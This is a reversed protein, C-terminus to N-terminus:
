LAFIDQLEAETKMLSDIGLDELEAFFGKGEGQVLLDPGIRCAHLLLKSEPNGEGGFYWEEYKVFRILSEVGVEPVSEV